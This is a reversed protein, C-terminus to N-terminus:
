HYWKGVKAPEATIPKRVKGRANRRWPKQAEVRELLRKQWTQAVCVNWGYVQPLCMSNHNITDWLRHQLIALDYAAFMRHGTPGAEISAFIDSLDHYLHRDRVEPIHELIYSWRWHIAATHEPFIVQHALFQAELTDVKAHGVAPFAGIIVLGEVVIPPARETM